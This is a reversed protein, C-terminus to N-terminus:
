ARGVCVCVVSCVRMCVLVRSWEHWCVLWEYKGGLKVTTITTSSGVAASFAKLGTDTIKDLDTHTHWCDIRTGRPADGVWCACGVFRFCGNTM